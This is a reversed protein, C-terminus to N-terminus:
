GRSTPADLRSRLYARERENGALEIAREYAV